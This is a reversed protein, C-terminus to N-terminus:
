DNQLTIIKGQKLTEKVDILRQNKSGRFPLSIDRQEEIYPGDVLVDIYLLIRAKEKYYIEGLTYDTYLWIDKTPFQSKVEKVLDLVPQYNNDELPHGGSLTLGHIYPKNLAEFLMEYASVIQEQRNQKKDEETKGEGEYRNIEEIINECDSVRSIFGEQSMGRNIIDEMLKEPTQGTFYEEDNLKFILPEDDKLNFLEPNLPKLIAYGLDHLPILAIQEFEFTTGKSNTIVINDMCEPDIIMEYNTM